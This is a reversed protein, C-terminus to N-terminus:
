GVYYYVLSDGPGDLHVEWYDGNDGDVVWFSRGDASVGRVFWDSSLSVTRAEGTNPEFLLFSADNPSLWEIEWTSNPDTVADSLGDLGGGYVNRKLVEAGPECPLTQRGAVPDRNVVLYDADRDRIGAYPENRDLTSFWRGDQRLNLSGRTNWVGLFDYDREPLELYRCVPGDAVTAQVNFLPVSVCPIDRESGDLFKVRIFTDPGDGTWRVIRASTAPAEVTAKWRNTTRVQVRKVPEDVFWEVHSSWTECEPVDVDTLDREDASAPATVLLTAVLALALALAGSRRLLHAATHM